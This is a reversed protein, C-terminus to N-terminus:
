PRTGRVIIAHVVAATVGGPLGVDLIVFDVTVDVLPLRLDNRAAEALREKAEELTYRVETIM